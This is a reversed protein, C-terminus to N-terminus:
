ETEERTNALGRLWEVTDAMSEKLSRPVYGLSTRAREGSVTVGLSLIKLSKRTYRPQRNLVACYLEALFGWIQSLGIPIDIRSAKKGTIEELVTFIERVTAYNGPLLYRAGPTGFDAAAIAGAAVDRADVFDFGGAVGMPIKGTLYDRVMTTMPTMKYDYPGIFGTPLITVVELTAVAKSRGYPMLTHDPHIPTSETIPYEGALLDFVEISSIYVLRRVGSRLCAEIVNRTGEVNIRHLKRGGGLGIAILGATHYVVDANRFAERLSGPDELDGYIVDAAEPLPFRPSSRVM